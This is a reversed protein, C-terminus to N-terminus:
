WEDRSSEIRFQLAFLTGEESAIFMTNGSISPAATMNEGTEYKCIEEGTKLDLLYITGNDSIIIVTNKFILPSAEFPAFGTFQWVEEGSTKDIAYVTRNKSAAILTDDAIAPSNIFSGKKKKDEFSWEIQKNKINVCLVKGSYLTTFCYGGAITPSAPIYSESDIQFNEEGTVPSIFRLKGDCGGFIIQSESVAPTGNVFNGTTVSWRKKGDATNLAYLNNDYSGFVVDTNTKSLSINAAGNIQGATQFSWKKKGNVIDLATFVGDTNGIFLTNKYISPSAKIPANTSYKWIISADSCSLAYVIGDNDGIFLKQGKIVPTSSFGSSEGEKEPKERIEASWLLKIATVRSQLDLKKETVAGTLQPNGRFILWDSSFDPLPLVAGGESLMKEPKENESCACLSVLIIISMVYRM